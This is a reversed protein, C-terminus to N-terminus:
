AQPAWARTEQLIKLELKNTTLGLEEAEALRCRGQLTPQPRPLNNTKYLIDQMTKPVYISDEIWLDQIIRLKEIPMGIM